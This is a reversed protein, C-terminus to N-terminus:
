AQVLARQMHQRTLTMLTRAFAWALPPTWGGGHRRVIRILERWNGIQNSATKSSTHWRYCALPRPVYLWSARRLRLWLEYDMGFELGEDLYGVSEFVRRRLFVAPQPIFNGRQLLREFDYQGPRVYWLSRGNADIVQCDGCLVDLTADRQFHEIVTALAGPTYLDDANLWAVVDGSALRMGTNIAASQKLGPRALWRAPSDRVEAETQDTSGGDVVLHEVGGLVNQANISALCERIHREANLTPTVITFM